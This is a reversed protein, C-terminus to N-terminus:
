TETRGGGRAGRGQSIGCYYVAADSQQSGLMRLMGDAAASVRDPRIGAGYKVDSRNTSRFSLLLQPRQGTRKRYWSITFPAPGPPAPSLLAPAATTTNDTDLLPCHLTVEDGVRVHLTSAPLASCVGCVSILIVFIVESEM